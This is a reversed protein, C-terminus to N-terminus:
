DYVNSDRMIQCTLIQLLLTKKTTRFSVVKLASKPCSRAGVLRVKKSM